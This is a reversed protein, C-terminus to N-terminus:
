RMSIWMGGRYTHGCNNGHRHDRSHAWHGNHHYHGCNDDHNHGSEIEVRAERDGHGRVVCGAGTLALAAALIMTKM